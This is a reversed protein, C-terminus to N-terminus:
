FLGQQTTEPEKGLHRYALETAQRGQKTRMIFGVKLLFPELVDEITDREENLTASLTEIGVPGGSYFDIIVELYKRDLETLGMDDVGEMKLADNVTKKDAKGANRVSAFDRVWRLLRNAVRPTGRSRRAIEWLAEREINFNLLKASRELINSLQEPPYFDLHYFSAFRDRLPKSVLGARTTAGVLTFPKLKLQVPRAYAGKDLTFTIRYDEMAPYIYEEVSVPLRHIEDIFLVDRERLSTLIGLLDGPRTLAPGSTSHLKTGLESAIVNALTTKGLGPPGHFLCHPFPEDREKTALLSIRIREVVELQGIVEDLKRPRLSWNFEEEERDLNQPSIIRRRAESM